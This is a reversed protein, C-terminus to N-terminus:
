GASLRRGPGLARELLPQLVALTRETAGKNAELVERARDGQQRAEHPEALWRRLTAEVGAADRAVTLGGAAALMEVESRFNHVSPGVVVARGQSAPEMMNQGGHPVLTGGVFVMDAFAYAQELEGVTDLLRLDDAAPGPGQAARSRRFVRAGQAEVQRVVEEARGPHRPALILTVPHGSRAFRGAMGALLAEEGPHTSGAVLVPRGAPPDLVRRLDEGWPGSRQLPINDLKMNGTVRVREAPLGLALFRRAYEETQTCVAALSALLPRAV